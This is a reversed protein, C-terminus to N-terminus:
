DSVPNNLGNWLSFPGGVITPVDLRQQRLLVAGGFGCLFWVVIAGLIYPKMALGGSEIAGMVFPAFHDLTM